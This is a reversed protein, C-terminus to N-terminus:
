RSGAGTLIIKLTRFIILIDLWPSFNKIYYFDYQLKWLVEDVEVVHGQNVQAWGTIGPKVVHRYRYFPLEEEYWQSLIRAEPRPGIWSMEGMLVNFIQPLEDIRTRRLFRGLRTIRPDGNSTIALAREDKVGLPEHSYMTRFKYVTFQRGGHGVRVQRFLAPGPTELRIALAIIGFFPLLVAAAAAAVAFDAIEKLKFYVLGPVLSGFSNESLHDIEVRGTLSERLQKVHYVPVGALATDALAREWQDPLDARFDAVIADCLRHELNAPDSLRVWEIPHSPELAGVAGHPVVGIRLSSARQSIFFVVYYWLVCFLYGGILLFRNYEFRTLLFGLAVIGYAASYVPLIYYSSVIGPYTTLSKFMYFGVIVAFASAVFSNRLLEYDIGSPYIEM